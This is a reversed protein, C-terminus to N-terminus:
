SVLDTIAVFDSQNEPSDMVNSSIQQPKEKMGEKIWARREGEAGLSWQDTERRIYKSTGSHCMFPIM